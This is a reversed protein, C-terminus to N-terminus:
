INIENKNIVIRQKELHYKQSIFFSSLFYKIYLFILEKTHTEQNIFMKSIQSKHSETVVIKHNKPIAVPKIVEYRTNLSIGDTRDIKTVIITIESMEIQYM